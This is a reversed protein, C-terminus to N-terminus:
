LRTGLLISGWLDPAMVSVSPMHRGHGCCCFLYCRCMSIPIPVSLVLPQYGLLAADLQDTCLYLRIVLPVRDVCHCLSVVSALLERGPATKVESETSECCYFPTASHYSFPICRTWTM